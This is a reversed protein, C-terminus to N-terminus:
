NYCITSGTRDCYNISFLNKTALLVGGSTGGRWYWWLLVGGLFAFLNNTALLVGGTACVCLVFLCVFLCLFCVVLVAPGARVV